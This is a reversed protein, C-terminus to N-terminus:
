SQKNCSHLERSIGDYPVKVSLDVFFIKVIFLPMLRHSNCLYFLHKEGVMIIYRSPPLRGDCIGIKDGM